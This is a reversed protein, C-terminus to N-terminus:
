LQQLWRIAARTNKDKSQKIVDAFSFWGWQTFEEELKLEDPAFNISDLDIFNWLDYHASCLPQKIPNEIKTITLFHKPLIQEESITLGWEEGIERHVAQEVTEDADLHGGNCIWLGGKKHFGWFMKKAKMDVGAFYTCFHELSQGRLYKGSQVLKRFRSKLRQDSAQAREIFELISTQQVTM